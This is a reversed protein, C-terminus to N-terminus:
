ERDAALIRRGIWEAVNSVVGDGCAAYRRSDPTAPGDVATWGDPWSMLRECETPTLRRVGDNGSVLNVDDEQRRGPQNVSPGTASGRTLPAAILQGGAAGEADVRWGRGNPAQLASVVLQGGAAAEANLGTGGDGPNRLPSVITAGDDVTTNVGKGYRRTLPGAVEVGGRAAPSAEQWSCDGAELDGGGGAGLARLAPEPDGGLRGVIFVRRRRQPVGFYRADLTRWAVGYGLDVLTSLVVAFDRGDASSLLGPVNEVLLWRPQLEAAVRAFEFFLGSRHGELGARRGAVSLDQCPFGGCLLDVDRRPQDRLWGDHGTLPRHRNPDRSETDRMVGGRLDVVDKAVPSGADGIAARSWSRGADAGHREGEMVGTVPRERGSATVERVDEACPVDPWHWKLVRRRWPDKECQSVVRLGARELGLDLGGAGSFLSRVNV